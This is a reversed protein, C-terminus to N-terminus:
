VLCFVRKEAKDLLAYNRGHSWQWFRVKNDPERSSDLHRYERLKDELYELQESCVGVAWSPEYRELVPASSCRAERAQLILHNM